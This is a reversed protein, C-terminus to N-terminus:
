LLNVWCCCCCDNDDNGDNGCACVEPWATTYMEALVALPPLLLSGRVSDTKAPDTHELRWACPIRSRACHWRVQLVMRWSTRCMREPSSLSVGRRSRTIMTSSASEASGGAISTSGLMALLEFVYLTMEM